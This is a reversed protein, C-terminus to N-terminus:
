HALTFMTLFLNLKSQNKMCSHTINISSNIRVDSCAFIDNEDNQMNTSESTNMVKNSERKKSGKKPRLHPHKEWCKEISHGTKKCYSCTKKITSNAMEVDQSNSTDQNRHFDNM